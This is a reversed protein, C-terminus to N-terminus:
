CVVLGIKEVEDSKGLMQTPNVRQVFSKKEMMDLIHQALGRYLPLGFVQEFM